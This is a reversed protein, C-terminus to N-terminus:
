EYPATGKCVMLAAAPLATESVGTTVCNLETASDGLAVVVKTGRASEHESAGPKDSLGFVPTTDPVGVVAPVKLQMMSTETVFLATVHDTGVCSFM